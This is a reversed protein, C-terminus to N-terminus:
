LGSFDFRECDLVFVGGKDTEVIMSSTEEDLHMDIINGGDPSEWVCKIGPTWEPKV